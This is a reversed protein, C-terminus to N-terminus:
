QLLISHCTSFEQSRAFPVPKCSKEECRRALTKMIWSRALAESNHSTWSANRKKHLRYAVQSRSKAIDNALTDVLLLPPPRAKAKMPSIQLDRRWPGMHSRGGCGRPDRAYTVLAFVSDVQQGNCLANLAGRVDVYRGDSLWNFLIMRVLAFALCARAADSTQCNQMLIGIAPNAENIACDRAFNLASKTLLLEPTGIITTELDFHVFRHDVCFINKPCVDMPCLTSGDAAHSRRTPNSVTCRDDRVLRRTQSIM